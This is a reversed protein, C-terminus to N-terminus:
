RVTLESLELGRERLRDAIRERWADVRAGAPLDIELTIEREAAHVVIAAGAWEGSGIEIRATARRGDGGWAVRRVLRTWLEAFPLPGAGFRPAPEALGVGSAAPLVVQEVPAGHSFSPALDDVTSHGGKERETLPEECARGRTGDSDGGPRSFVEAPVALPTPGGSLVISRGLAPQGAASALSEAL